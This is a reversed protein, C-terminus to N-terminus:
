VSIVYLIASTWQLQLYKRLSADVTKKESYILTQKTNLDSRSIAKQKTIIKLILHKFATM